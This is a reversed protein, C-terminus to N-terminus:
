RTTVVTLALTLRSSTINFLLYKCFSALREVDIMHIKIFELLFGLIKPVEKMHTYKKVLYTFQNIYQSTKRLNKRM